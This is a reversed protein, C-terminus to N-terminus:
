VVKRKIFRLLDEANDSYYTQIVNDIYIIPMHTINKCEIDELLKNTEDEKNGLLVDRADIFKCPINEKKCLEELRYSVTDGSSYYIIVSGNNHEEENKRPRGRPM